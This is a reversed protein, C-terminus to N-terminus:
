FGSAALAILLQGGYYFVLSIRRFRWPKRFRCLALIADSVYFSVAGVSIMVAQATDFVPSSLTSIGRNVMLSIAVIYALVPWRMKGLNPRLLRYVGIGGAALLGASLADWGSVRGLVGFTVVYAVHALLFAALGALLAERREEFMLVIDGLLSFALGLLVGVAYVPEIGPRCFALVAVGIVILTSLPKLIYVLYWKARIAAWVLLLVTGALAPILCLTPTM